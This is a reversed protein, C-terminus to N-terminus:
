TREGVLRVTVLFVMSILLLVVSMVIASPLDGSGFREYIALPMTQTVGRRNGAFMITAGFEGLARAWALVAGAVISNRALPLTIRRFVTFPPAGLDAAADELNRDVRLFGARASRVFFPASVFVQALVVATATFGIQVGQKDLWGGVTGARGFATLLAIGAVAPPLLIPLDVLADVIRAAKGSSRALVYALPTGFLVVLVMAIASTTMSLVIADLLIGRTRDNSAAARYEWARWMLSIVPLALFAIGVGAIIWMVFWTRSARFTTM